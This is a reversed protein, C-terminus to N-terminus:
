VKERCGEREYVKERCGESECSGAGRGGVCREAGRGRVSEGQM